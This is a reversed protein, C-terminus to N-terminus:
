VLSRGGIWRDVLFNLRMGNNLVCHTCSLFMEEAEAAIKFDLGQWPKDSDAMALWRWRMRLAHNLLKLNKVGLGGLEKPTCVTDWAVVCQGRRAETTGSWFFGRLLKNITNFFWPPLDLSLMHYIPTAALKSNLYVLRGSNKLLAAVWMLVGRTVKDVLPQIEMKSLRVLSLPLALYQIPFPKVPCGLMSLVPQLDIGECRIPSVFSKDLNCRLGSAAGFLQLLEVATTAEHVTPKILLVVDDAFFSLRHRIGMAAFSSFLGAGEAVKFIANLVNFVLVFFM